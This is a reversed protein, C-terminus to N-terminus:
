FTLEMEVEEEGRKIIATTTDGKKFLGLARMYAMIDTIKLEGLQLIIDGAQMGAAHAPKGETVGDLKMGPGEFAYSPIVGLTVSFRAPRNPNNEQQTKSFEIEGKDDLRQILSEIYAIVEALGQYNVKDADDSPKHYDNHAGTFFHLVPIDKLYFSSHDSPGVGSETTSLKIDFCDIKDLVEKWIPSTGVGNIILSQDKLRGIMDMNIMYNITALDIPSNEVFYKSGLLGKEEGSFGIFLYNNNKPGHEKLYRALEIVAATGSANDDAGNHIARGEQHLSGEEGWGLHDYHGGIVVTMPAENDLFAVANYGTKQVEKMSVKLTQLQPLKKFFDIHKRIIFVVPIGEASMKKFQALPDKLHDDANYVIVGAAGKKIALAIRDGLDHYKLYKSHPHVGDPASFNMLFVKGQYDEGEQYDSYDLDEAEIGFGVNVLEKGSVEGNASQQIPYFDKDLEFVQEGVTLQTSQAVEVPGQFSFPQGYNGTATVPKLGISLFAMNLYDLALREGQSDTDRGELKDDALFEVHGRLRKLLEPSPTPCPQAPLELWVSWLIMSILSTTLYKM